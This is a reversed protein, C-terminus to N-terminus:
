ALLPVLEGVGDDAFAALADFAAGAGVGRLDLEVVHAGLQLALDLLFGV